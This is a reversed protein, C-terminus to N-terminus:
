QPGGGLTCQEDPRRALPGARPVREVLVQLLEGIERVGGAGFHDAFDRLLDVARM